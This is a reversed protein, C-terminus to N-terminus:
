GKNEVSWSVVRLENAEKRLAVTLTQDESVRVRFTLTDGRTEVPLEPTQGARLKALVREAENCASYYAESREALLRSRRLEEKAGQLRLLSFTVLMLVLLVTLLLPAGMSFFGPGSRDDKM